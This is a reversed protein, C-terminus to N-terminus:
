LLQPEILSTLPQGPDICQLQIVFCPFKPLLDLGFDVLPVSTADLHAVGLDDFVYLSLVALESSIWSRQVGESYAIFDVLLILGAEVAVFSWSERDFLSADRRQTAAKILEWGFALEVLCEM